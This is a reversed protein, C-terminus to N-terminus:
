TGLDALIATHSDGKRERQREKTYKAPLPRISTTLPTPLNSGIGVISFPANMKVQEQAMLNVIFTTKYM